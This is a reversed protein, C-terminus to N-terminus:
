MGRQLDFIPNPLKKMLEDPAGNEQVCDLLPGLAEHDRLAFYAYALKGCAESLMRFKDLNCIGSSTVLRGDDRLLRYHGCMRRYTGVYYYRHTPAKGPKRRAAYGDQVIVEDGPTHAARSTNAKSPAFMGSTYRGSDNQPLTWENTEALRRAEARCEDDTFTHGKAGHSFPTHKSTGYGCVSCKPTAM